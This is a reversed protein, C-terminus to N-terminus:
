PYGIQNNNAKMFDKITDVMDDTGFHRTLMEDVKAKDAM